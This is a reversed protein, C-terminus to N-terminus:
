VDSSEISDGFRYVRDTRRHLTKPKSGIQTFKENYTLLVGPLITPAEQDSSRVVVKTNQVSSRRSRNPTVVLEIDMTVQLTDEHMVIESVTAEAM